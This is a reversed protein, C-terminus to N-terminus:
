SPLVWPAPLRKFDSSDFTCVTEGNRIAELVLVADAFDVNKDRVLEIARIMMERDEVEVGEALLLPILVQAIEDYSRRYFSKLVWIMEALVLPSILLLAEGQEARRMLGVAKLALDEPEGTLFRLLVNADVRYRIM